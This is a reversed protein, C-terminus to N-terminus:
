KRPLLDSVFEQRYLRSIKLGLSVNRDLLMIYQLDTFLALNKGYPVPM